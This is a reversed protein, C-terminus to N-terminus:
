VCCRFCRCFWVLVGSFFFWKSSSALAFLCGSLGLWLTPFRPFGTPLALGRYHGRSGIGEVGSRGANIVLHVGTSWSTLASWPM